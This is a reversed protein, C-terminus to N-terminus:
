PWSLAKRCGILPARFGFLTSVTFVRSIRPLKCPLVAMTSVAKHVFEGLSAVLHLCQRSALRHFSSITSHATLQNISIVVCQSALLRRIRWLAIDEPLWHLRREQIQARNSFSKLRQEILNNRTWERRFRVGNLKKLMAPRSLEFLLM